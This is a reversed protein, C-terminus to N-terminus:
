GAGMLVDIINDLLEMCRGIEIILNKNMKRERKVVTPRSDENYEGCKLGKTRISLLV